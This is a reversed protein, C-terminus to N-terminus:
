QQAGPLGFETDIFDFLEEPTASEVLGDVDAGGDGLPQVGALRVLEGLLGAERFRSLPVAALARRFEAEGVGEGGSEGGSEGGPEGGPEGRSGSRPMIHAWLHEALAGPTPHDFVLTAPLSLGSVQSLRNRLELATLSDVGLERFTQGAAVAEPSPMHLVEAAQARVVDVLMNMGEADSASGALRQALSRQGASRQGGTLGGSVGGAAGAAPGRRHPPRVLDALVAPVAALQPRARLAALDLRVPLLVPDGVAVAADFLALGDASPLPVVGGRRMRALDAETLTGTMGSTSREAWMGWGLSVAPLGYARRRYALADLFANAVAYNGQGAGGFTGVASSFLVFARLDFGRTLEDLNVAGDVKPRLVADLRDPTLASITGDDLVGAAHVVAQLPHREGVQAVVGALAARDAVDCAAVTVDAGLGTLEAALEVAGPADLGRRSTLLLHKVGHRAVLYRALHAGLAGTAGTVLVTGQLDGLWAPGEEPDPMGVRALRPVRLEGARVAVQPEGSVIAAPLAAWSADEGDTDVLVIRGPHELQASRVLGWVPACALDPEDGDAAVVAGRTVVSLRTLTCREDASWAQLLGLARHATGRVAAALDGSDRGGATDGAAAADCAGVADFVVVVHEFTECASTLASVDSCSVVSIGAAELSAVPEPGAAGVVAWRGSPSGPVHAERVGTLDASLGDAGMGDAGM